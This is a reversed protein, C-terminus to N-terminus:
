KLDSVIWVRFNKTQTVIKFFSGDCINKELICLFQCVRTKWSEMLSSLSLGIDSALSNQTLRSAVGELLSDCFHSGAGQETDETAQLRAVLLSQAGVRSAGGYWAGVKIAFHKTGTNIFDVLWARCWM